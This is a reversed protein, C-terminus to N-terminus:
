NKHSCISNIFPHSAFRGYVLYYLIHACEQEKVGCIRGGVRAFWQLGLSMGNRLYYEGIRM